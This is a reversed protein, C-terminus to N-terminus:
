HCLQSFSDSADSSFHGYKRSQQPQASSSSSALTHFISSAKSDQHGRPTPRPLMRANQGSAYLFPTTAMQYPAVLCPAGLPYIGWDSLFGAPKKEVVAKSWGTLGASLPIVFSSTSPSLSNMIPDLSFGYTLATSYYRM